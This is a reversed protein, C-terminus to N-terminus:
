ILILLVASAGVFDGNGDSAPYIGGVSRVSPQLYWFRLSCGVVTGHVQRKGNRANSRPYLWVFMTEGTHSGSGFAEVCFLSLGYNAKKVWSEDPPLSAYVYRLSLGKEIDAEGDVPAEYGFTKRAPLDDISAACRFEMSQNGDNDAKAIYFAGDAQEFCGYCYPLIKGRYVAMSRKLIAKKGTLSTGGNTLQINDAFEFLTYSNVVATMVGDTMGEFGDVGRVIFYHKLATMGTGTSVDISGDTSVQMTGDDGYYFINNKNGIYSLLGAAAIADLVRQPELMEVIGYWTNGAIGGVLNYKTTGDTVVSNGWVDYYNTVTDSVMVKWGSNASITDDNFTNANVTDRSTLGSGFKDLDTVDVSGAEAFLLACWAEYFEYYEALYPSRTLPDTNKAQARQINQVCSTYQTPYGGGSTKYSDKFVPRPKDYTGAVNPNYICHQQANTDGDIKGYVEGMAAIGHKPLIKSMKGNWYAPVLGIGIVNLEKADVTKTDKLLQIDMDWGIYVDGDSGDIAVTDGNTAKTLRGGEMIHQPKGNKVTMLHLHSGIEHILDKSGYSTEADPSDAGNQRAFGAFQNKESFAAMMAAFQSVTDNAKQTAATANDIATNVSNAATTASTAADTAKDAATNAKDTAADAASKSSEFATERKQEAEKRADEAKQRETEASTRKAEATDRSTEATVRASEATKRADEAKVRASEAQERATEAEVRGQEATVRGQEAKVRASEAEKRADEDEQRETEAETAAAAADNAKDAATNAKDTASTANKTATECAGKATTFATERQTEANARQTEAAARATEATVRAKEANVRETEASERSQESQARKNEATVRASEAEKRADEDEQRETEAEVRASETATIDSNTKEAKATQEECAAKAANVASAAETAEEAAKVAGQRVEELLSMYTRAQGEHMEVDATLEWEDGSVRVSTSGTSSTTSSSVEIIAGPSKMRYSKGDAGKCSLEIAYKGASLNGDSVASLENYATIEFNLPSKVGLTSVLSATVDTAGQLDFAAGGYSINRITIPFWQGKTVTIM